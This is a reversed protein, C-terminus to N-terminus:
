AGSTFLLDYVVWTSLAHEELPVDRGDRLMRTRYGYRELLARVQRFSGKARGATDGRVEIWLDPRFTQDAFCALMGEIAEVEFGEVDVKIVRVKDLSGFAGAQALDTFTRVQATGHAEMALADSLSTAGTNAADYYLPLEGSANSLAVPLVTGFRERNRLLFAAHRPEPEVLVTRMGLQRAILGYVGLNAGIDLFTTGPVAVTRLYRGLESNAYYRLINHFCYCFFREPDHEWEVQFTGLPTRLASCPRSRFATDLARLIYDRKRGAISIQTPMLRMVTNVQLARRGGTRFRFRTAQERGVIHDQFLRERQCPPARQPIRVRGLCERLGSGRRDRM